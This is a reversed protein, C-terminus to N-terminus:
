CADIPYARSCDVGYCDIDCDGSGGCYYELCKYRKFSPGDCCTWSWICYPIAGGCCSSSPSECLWCCKYHVLASATQPAGLIGYTVGLVAAGARAIFKRRPIGEGVRRVLEDVSM